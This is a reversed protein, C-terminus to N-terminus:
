FQCPHPLTRTKKGMIMLLHTPFAYVVVRTCNHTNQEISFWCFCILRISNLRRVSAYETHYKKFCEIHLGVNCKECMYLSTGACEPFACRRQKSKVPWHNLQDFRIDHQPQKGGMRSRQPTSQQLYFDVISRRFSLFDTKAYAVNSQFRYHLFGNNVASISLFNLLYTHRM